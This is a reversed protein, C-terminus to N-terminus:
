NIYDGRLIRFKKRSEAVFISGPYEVMLQQYLEKAKTEDGVLKEYINAMEFLADDTLIGYPLDNAIKVLLNTAKEYEGNEKHIRAKLWYLNDLIPHEEYTIVLNDLKRIAEERKNQYLLLEINAYDILAQQTSDLITNNKILISLDMADNAIEKRTANKLIDLHEQALKFDGKYFSLKANKFKAMEGIANNKNAKEVQYYLLVSEWSEGTIIYIDGLDLKVQSILDPDANNFSIIKNFIEIAKQTENLYFAHLMAKQRYAELTNYSLGMTAILQDYSKVLERIATTDIPFTSKVINERSEILMRKTYIFNRSDPYADVLYQFIRSSTEYEENEFALMGIEISNEGALGARKDIARAQIFAGYFNKVQLNAWILMDSYIDNNPEKQTKDMLYGIFSELDERETLSLQLMNKVYRLQNPRESGFAMYERIMKDKENSYRYLNALQLSYIIPDNVTGRAALYIREAYANHQKNVLYQAAPQVMNNVQKLVKEELKKYFQDAKASDSTYLYFDIIDVDFSINNKFISNIKLLYKETEETLQKIELLELYNNHIYNINQPKEALKEFLELAKDLEGQRYYENALAIESTNQASVTLAACTIIILTILFIKKM